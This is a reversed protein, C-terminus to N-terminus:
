GPTNLTQRRASNLSHNRRLLESRSIKKKPQNKVNCVNILTLLRNLHWKECSFPINFATMWYYIIEATIIERNIWKAKEKRFTTASTPDEIYEFVEKIRTRYIEDFIVPNVNQTITMCKLYSITEGPSMNQKPVLFAKKWISEWKALSILSHELKLTQGRINIFQGSNEDYLEVTPVNIELM